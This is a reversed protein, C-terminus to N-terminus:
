VGASALSRALWAQCWCENDPVALVAWVVGSSWYYAAFTGCDGTSYVPVLVGYEIAGGPWPGSNFRAM